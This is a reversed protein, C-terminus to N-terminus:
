RQILQTDVGDSKQGHIGHLLGVRAMGTHRQPIRGHGEGEPIAKQFEIGPIRLPGIPVAEYERGSVTAHQEVAHKIQVTKIEGQFFNFLEPLPAAQGRPVGFVAFGRSNFGGGAGQSLSNGVGHTHSHRFCRQRGTKVTGTKGHDIVIGIHYGAVTVKHFADTGFGRRQGSVQLEAFEDDQPRVVVDSNLAVRIEGEGFINRAAKGSMAPLHLLYRVAVIGTLHSRGNNCGLSFGPPWGKNSDPGMDAVAAGMFLIRGPSM